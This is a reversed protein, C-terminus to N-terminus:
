ARARLLDALQELLRAPSFPKTLFLAAGAQEAEQRCVDYLQNATIVVIPMSKTADAKKLERLANLGDMKPMMVDMIVVRPLERSAIEIAERGNAAWIVQYGARELSRRYLSHVIPDDDAILVKEPAVGAQQSQGPLVDLGPASCPFCSKM